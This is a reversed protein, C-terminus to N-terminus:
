FFHITGDTMPSLSGHLICSSFYPINVYKGDYSVVHTTYFIGHLHCLLYIYPSSSSDVLVLIIQSVVNEEAGNHAREPTYGARTVVLTCM